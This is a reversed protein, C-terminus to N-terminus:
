WDGAYSLDEESLHKLYDYKLRTIQRIHLYDHALWNSLFMKATMKGFKPHEYANNWQPNSLSQLWKVSQARESLFDSVKDDYNEQMYDRATVWGQPDIPPLPATPTELVHRTRSRFDEREEDYLHCVIELLCWKEPNPKWLYLEESQRSLLEKFVTSNESLANVINASNM